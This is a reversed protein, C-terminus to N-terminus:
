TSGSGDDRPGRAVSAESASEAASSEPSPSVGQTDGPDDQAGPPDDEPPPEVRPARRRRSLEALEGALDLDKARRELGIERLLGQLQSALHARDRVVQWVKRHRRDVLSPLTMLYATVSDLQWWAAIILDVMALLATSCAERGGLDSVLSERREALARGVPTDPGPLEPRRYLRYLGSRKYPRKRRKAPGSGARALTLPTQPTRPTQKPSNPGGSTIEPSAPTQAELDAMCSM